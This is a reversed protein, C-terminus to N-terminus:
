MVAQASQCQQYKQWEQSCGMSKWRPASPKPLGSTREAWGGRPPLAGAPFGCPPVDRHSSVAHRPPPRYPGAKLGLVRSLRDTGAREQRLPHVTLELLDKADKLLETHPM